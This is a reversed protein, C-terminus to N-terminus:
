VATGLFSSVGKIALSHFVCASRTQSGHTLEESMQQVFWTGGSLSGKGVRCQNPTDVRIGELYSVQIGALNPHGKLAEIWLSCQKLYPTLIVIDKAKISPNSAVFHLLAKIGFHIYHSNGKSSGRAERLHFCQCPFDVHSLRKRRPGQYNSPLVRKLISCM